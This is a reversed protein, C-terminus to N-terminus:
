RRRGMPSYGTSSHSCPAKSISSYFHFAPPFIFIEGREMDKVDRQLKRSSHPPVMKILALGKPATPSRNRM